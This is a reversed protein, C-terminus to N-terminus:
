EAQVLAGRLALLASRIRTKITGLPQLTKEAIEAHTLGDFFAMELASRQEQPLKGLVARVKEMSTSRFVHEDLKADTFLQVDEIDCQPRRKRLQDISRHRTVVALWASLSGRQSDFLQPKRWLQMFIEQTVDEAAANDGLVRLAVAYVIRGYRQFLAALADDDGQKLRNVLQPDSPGSNDAGPPLCREGLYFPAVIRNSQV